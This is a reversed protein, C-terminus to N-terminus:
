SQGQWTLEEGLAALLRRNEPAEGVCVRYYDPGLGPYNGCARILIGRELLRARLDTRGPARFLLYNAQGPTVKLGLEALGAALGPREAAILARAPAPWDPRALAALGAALLFPLLWPILFRLALWLAALALAAYLLKLLFRLHKNEPM